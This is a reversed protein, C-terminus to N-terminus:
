GKEKKSPKKVGYVSKLVPDQYGTLLRRRVAEQVNRSHERAPKIRDNNNDYM